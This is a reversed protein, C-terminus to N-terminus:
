KHSVGWDFTWMRSEGIASLFETASYEDTGSVIIPTRISKSIDAYHADMIDYLYRMKHWKFMSPTMIGVFSTSYDQQKGSNNKFYFKHTNKDTTFKITGTGDEM